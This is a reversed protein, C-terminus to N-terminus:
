ENCQKFKSLLAIMYLFCSYVIITIILQIQAPKLKPFVGNGTKAFKRDFAFFELSSNMEFNSFNSVSNQQLEQRVTHIPKQPQNVHQWKVARLGLQPFTLNKCKHTMRNVPPPPPPTQRQTWPTDTSAVGEASMEERSSGRPYVSNGEPYFCKGRLEASFCVAHMESPHMRTESHLQKKERRSHTSHIDIIAIISNLSWYSSEFVPRM